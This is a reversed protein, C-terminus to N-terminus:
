KRSLSKHDRLSALLFEECRKDGLGKHGSYAIKQGVKQAIHKAIYIKPKRGEILRKSRLRIIEGDSLKKGLQVRNLLEVDLLGLDTNGALVNAYNMDLIKGTITVEVRNESLDYDPLPFLRKRQFDYMKRIGSGITDVMKLGVMATALFQNRYNEEPADSLLVREINGPIFSGKNSFVLKDDYEVVNIQGCLTYDQHAIANHLAERIVYPEYTDIEEPFLTKHEPNIYRYKLNRIKDYIKDVALIFPCSAIMYDREMNDKDKLIWKIKAVSPSILCESEEKGLLLIATNTIKGRVTIKAKNLFTVDDWSAIEESKDNHAKTYLDRAKAIAQPDLDELTADSIIDASWDKIKIQGRIREIKELSLGQLSEGDRGYFHDQYAIPIGQPAPPIEFMVVRKGDYELEHIETFTHRGTTQDAIKKKMADLAPRTKKYNSGLVAHTGNEIGFVLWACSKGRLNAENSLASFYQGLMKDDFSNEAKKFEVVEIEAPLNLLRELTSALDKTKM